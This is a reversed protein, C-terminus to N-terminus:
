YMDVHSRSIPRATGTLVRDLETNGKGKCSIETIVSRCPMEELTQFNSCHSSDPAGLSERREITGYYPCFYERLVLM